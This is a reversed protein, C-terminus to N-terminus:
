TNHNFGDMVWGKMMSCDIWGGMWAHDMYGHIWGYSSHWSSAGLSRSLRSVIQPLELFCWPSSLFGGCCSGCCSGVSTCSNMQCAMPRNVWADMCRDKWGYLGTKNTKVRAINAVGAKAIHYQCVHHQQHVIAHLLEHESAHVRRWCNRTCTDWTVRWGHNYM